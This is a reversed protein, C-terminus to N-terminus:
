FPMLYLSRKCTAESTNIIFVNVYLEKLRTIQSMNEQRGFLVELKTSQPEISTEWAQKLAM